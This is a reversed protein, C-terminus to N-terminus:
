GSVSGHVGTPHVRVYVSKGADMVERTSGSFAISWATSGLMTAHLAFTLIQACVVSGDLGPFTRKGVLTVFSGIVAEQCVFSSSINLM